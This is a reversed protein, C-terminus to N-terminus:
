LKKFKKLEWQKKHFHYIMRFIICGKIITFILTSVVYKILKKMKVMWLTKMFSLFIKLGNLDDVPVKQSLAWCYLYNVDFYKLCLSEKNIDYDKM